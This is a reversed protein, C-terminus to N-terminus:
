ALQWHEDIPDQFLTRTGNVIDDVQVAEGTLASEYIADGIALSRLGEWGDIEPKERNGRLIELFEWIEISFGDTTGGPYLFEQEAESRTALYM